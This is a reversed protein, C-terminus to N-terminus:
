FFVEVKKENCSNERSKKFNKIIGLISLVGFIFLFIKTHGDLCVQGKNQPYFLIIMLVGMLVIFLHEMKDQFEEYRKSESKMGKYSTYVSLIMSILFLMKVVLIVYLYGEFSLSEQFSM